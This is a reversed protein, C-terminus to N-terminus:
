LNMPLNGLYYFQHATTTDGPEPAAFVCVDAGKELLKRELTAIM